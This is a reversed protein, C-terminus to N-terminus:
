NIRTFTLIENKRNLSYDFFNGINIQENKEDLDFYYKFGSGSYSSLLWKLSISDQVIEYSYPGTARLETGRTLTFGSYESEFALTDSKHIVEVWTGQVQIALADICDKDCSITLILLLGIFLFIKM